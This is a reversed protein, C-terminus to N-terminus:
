QVTHRSVDLLTFRCLDRLDTLCWFVREMPVGPPPAGAVVRLFGEATLDFQWGHDCLHDMVLVAFQEHPIPGPLRVQTVVYAAHAALAARADPTM